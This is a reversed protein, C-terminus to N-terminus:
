VPRVVRGSRTDYRAPQINTDKYQQPPLEEQVQATPPTNDVQEEKISASTGADELYEKTSLLHHRNRCYVQGECTHVHYSTQTNAPHVVVAPKWLGHAQIHFFQGQHLQPLPHASLDYYRKQQHQKKVRQSHTETYNVVKPMLQKNTTPLISRLRRSMLLQAHSKFNDVPTNRYELLSLYPHKIDTKAKTLITKAIQVTKEALGNSQPYHPSSRLRLM